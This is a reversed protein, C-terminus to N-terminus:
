RSGRRRRTGQPAIRGADGAIAVMREGQERPQALAQGLAGPGQRAALLLHQRDRAREQGPGPQEEEILRRETQRRLDDRQDELDDGWIALSPVVM